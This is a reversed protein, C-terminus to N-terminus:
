AVGSSFIEKIFSFPKFGVPLLLGSASM